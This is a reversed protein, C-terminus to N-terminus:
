RIICVVKYPIEQSELTPGPISTGFTKLPTYLQIAAYRSRVFILTAQAQEDTGDGDFDYEAPGSHRRNNDNNTRQIGFYGEEGPSDDFAILLPDEDFSQQGSTIGQGGGSDNFPITFRGNSQIVM